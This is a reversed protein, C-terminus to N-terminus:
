ERDTIKFTIKWKGASTFDRECSIKYRNSDTQNYSKYEMNNEKGQYRTTGTTFGSDNQIRFMNHISMMHVSYVKNANNATDDKVMFEEGPVVTNRDLEKYSDEEDLIDSTNKARSVIALFSSSANNKIYIFIKSSPGDYSVSSICSGASATGALALFISGLLVSRLSTQRLATAM